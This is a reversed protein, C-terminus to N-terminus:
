IPYESMPLFSHFVQIVAYTGTFNIRTLVVIITTTCKKLRILPRSIIVANNIM